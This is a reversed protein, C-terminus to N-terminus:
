STDRNSRVVKGPQSGIETALSVTNDDKGVYLSNGVSNLGSQRGLTLSVDETDLM